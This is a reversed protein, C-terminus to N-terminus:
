LEDFLAIFPAHVVSTSTSPEFGFYAMNLVIYVIYDKSYVCAMHSVVVKLGTGVVLVPAVPHGPPPM